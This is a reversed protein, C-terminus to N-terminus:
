EPIFQIPDDWVLVYQETPVSSDRIRAAVYLDTYEPLDGPADIHAIDQSVAGNYPFTYGSYVMGHEGFSTLPDGTTEEYGINFEADYNPNGFAILFNFGVTYDGSTGSVLLYPPDQGPAPQAYMPYTWGGTDVVYAGGELYDPWDAYYLPPDNEDDDEWIPGGAAPDIGADQLHDPWSGDWLVYDSYETLLRVRVPFKDATDDVGLLNNDGDRNLDPNWKPIGAYDFAVVRGRNLSNTLIFGPRNWVTDYGRGAIDVGPDVDFMWRFSEWGGGTDEVRTRGDGGCAEPVFMGHGPYMSWYLLPESPAIHDGNYDCGGYELTQPWHAICEATVECRNDFAFQAPASGYGARVEGGTDGTTSVFYGAVVVPPSFGDIVASPVNEDPDNLNEGYPQFTLERTWAEGPDELLLGGFFVTDDANNGSGVQVGDDNTDVIYVYWPFSFDVDNGNKWDNNDNTTVVYNGGPDTTVYANPMTQDPYHGDAGDWTFSQTGIEYNGSHWTGLSVSIIEPHGDYVALGEYISNGGPVGGYMWLGRDVWGLINMLLLRRNEPGEMYGNASELVETTAWPYGIWYVRHEGRDTFDYPGPHLGVNGYPAYRCGGSLFAVDYKGLFQEGCNIGATFGPAFTERQGYSYYGYGVMQPPQGFSVRVPIDGSGNVINREASDAGDSDCCDSFFKGTVTGTTALHRPSSMLRSYGDLELGAAETMGLAWLLREDGAQVAPAIANEDWGYWDRWAMGAYQSFDYGHNQSVLLVNHDAMMEIFKDIEAATWTRTDPYQEEATAPGGRYWIVVDESWTPPELDDSYDQPLYDVYLDDLDNVLAQYNAEYLGNDNRIM